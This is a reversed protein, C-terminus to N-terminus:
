NPDRRAENRSVSEGDAAPSTHRYERILRLKLYKAVRDTAGDSLGRSEGLFRYLSSHHINTQRSIEVPTEDAHRLYWRLQVTLTARKPPTKIKSM